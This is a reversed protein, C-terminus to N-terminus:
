TPDGLKRRVVGAHPALVPSIFGCTAALLEMVAIFTRVIRIPGELNILQLSSNISVEDLAM